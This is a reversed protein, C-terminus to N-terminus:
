LLTKRVGDIYLAVENYGLQQALVDAELNHQNRHNIMTLKNQKNQLHSLMIKVCQLHGKRAAFHLANFGISNSRTDGTCVSIIENEMNINNSNKMLSLVYELLARHGGSCCAMLVSYGEFQGTGKRTIYTSKIIENDIQALLFKVVNIHGSRCGHLIPTWEDGANGLICKTQLEADMSNLLLKILHLYGM